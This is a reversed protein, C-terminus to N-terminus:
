TALKGTVLTNKVVHQQLQKLQGEAHAKEQAVFSYDQRLDHIKDEAKALASELSVMKEQTTKLQIQLQIVVKGKETINETVTQHEQKLRAEEHQLVQHAISLSHHAKQIDQHAQNLTHYDAKWKERQSATQEWPAQFFSKETTLTAVHQQLNTIKQEYENRQKELIFSQEQRLQQSAVRM